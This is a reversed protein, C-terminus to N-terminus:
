IRGDTPGSLIYQYATVLLNITDELFDCKVRSLNSSKGGYKCACKNKWLIRCVFIPTSQLILKHAGNKGKFLWWRMIFNRLPTYDEDIGFLCTIFGWINRAFDRAVFIHDITDLGSYLLM